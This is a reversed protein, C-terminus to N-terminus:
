RSLKDNIDKKINPIFNNELFLSLNELNPRLIDEGYRKILWKAHSVNSSVEFRDPFAKITISPHFEKEDRLTTRDVPQGKKIKLRITTRTYGKLKLGKGDEGKTFLQDESIAEELEYGRSNITKELVEFINSELQDIFAIQRSFIM